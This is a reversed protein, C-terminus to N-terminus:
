GQQSIRKYRFCISCSKNCTAQYVYVGYLESFCRPKGLVNKSLYRLILLHISVFSYPLHRDFGGILINTKVDKLILLARM